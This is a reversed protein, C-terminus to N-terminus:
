KQKTKKIIKAFGNLETIVYTYKKPLIFEENVEIMELIKKRIKKTEFSCRRGDIFPSGLNSYVKIKM